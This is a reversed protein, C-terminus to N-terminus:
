LILAKTLLIIASNKKALPINKNYLDVDNPAFINKLFFSFFRSELFLGTAYDYKSM